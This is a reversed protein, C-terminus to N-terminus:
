ARGGWGSFQTEDEAAVRGRRDDSLLWMVFAAYCYTSASVFDRKGISSFQRANGKTFARRGVEKHRRRYEEDARDSCGPEQAGMVMLLFSIM